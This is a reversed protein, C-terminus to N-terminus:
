LVVWVGECVSCELTTEQETRWFFERQLTGTGCSSCFKISEFPPDPESPCEPHPTDYFKPMFRLPGTLVVYLLEGLPNSWPNEFPRAMMKSQSM